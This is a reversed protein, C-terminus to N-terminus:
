DVGFDIWVHHLSKTYAAWFAVYFPRSQITVCQRWKYTCRSELWYFRPPDSYRLKGTGVFLKIVPKTLRQDRGPLLPASCPEGDPKVEIFGKHDILKLAVEASRSTVIISGNRYRSVYQLPPKTLINTSEKMLAGNGATLLSCLFEDDDADWSICIRKGNKEDRLCNEVLNFINIKPDQHGPINLQDM